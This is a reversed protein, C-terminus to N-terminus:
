SAYKNIEKLVAEVNLGTKASVRPADEAPIGIIDEIESIVVEPRASPLDIKNIVPVVELDHDIALYAFSKWEFIVAKKEM